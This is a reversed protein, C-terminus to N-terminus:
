SAPVCLWNGLGEVPIIQDSAKLGRDTIHQFRYGHKLLIETIAEAPDGPNAELVIRPRIRGLVYDAGSLVVHAFGEVDIKVFDPQIDLEEVIGDLTRCEVQIVRGRQGRYGDVALSGMTADEAEHFNVTGNLNGLAVNLIKVRSDFGNLAVNNSLAACIKPVPEVAIVALRPNIKCGLVSYIGCNAGIDIFCRSRQLHEFMVPSTEKEWQRLGSWFIIHGVGDFETPVWPCKWGAGYITFPEHAWRWPFYGRIGSPLLGRQCAWTVGGRFLHMVAPVGVAKLTKRLRSM